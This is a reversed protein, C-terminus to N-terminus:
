NLSMLLFLIVGRFIKYTFNWILVFIPCSVLVFRRLSENKRQEQLVNLSATLQQRLVADLM